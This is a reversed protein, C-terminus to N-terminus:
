GLLKEHTEMILMMAEELKAVRKKLRYIEKSEQIPEQKIAGGGKIKERLANMRKQMGADVDSWDIDEEELGTTKNEQVPEGLPEEVAGGAGAYQQQQIKNMDIKKFASGDKLMKEYATLESM